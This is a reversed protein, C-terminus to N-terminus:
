ACKNIYDMDGVPRRDIVTCRPVKRMKRESQFKNALLVSLMSQDYRHCNPKFNSYDCDLHHGDPAICKPELACLIAWHLISDCIEGQPKRIWLLGAAGMDMKRLYATDTPFYDYLRVATAMYTNHYTQFSLLVDSSYPNRFYHM